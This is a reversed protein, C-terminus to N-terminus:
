SPVSLSGTGTIGAGAPDWSGYRPNLQVDVAEFQQQLAAIDANEGLKTVLIQLKAGSAAVRACDPNGLAPSTGNTERLVAQAEEDTVTQGNDAALDDAILGLIESMLLQSRQVQDPGLGVSECGEAVRTLQAESIRADGVQAATSPMPSCGAAVAAAVVAAMPILRTLKM